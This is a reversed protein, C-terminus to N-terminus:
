SPRTVVRNRGSDKVTYLTEDADKILAEVSDHGALQTIGGSVTVFSAASSFDHPYALLRFEETIRQGITEAQEASTNPLIIVFEEGGYRAVIDTPRCACKQLTNAVAKLCEDGAQHGYHDNFPKFHDVDLMIISLPSKDRKARNFELAIAKDFGRRNTLSTLQDQFALLEMKLKTGHLEEQINFLREMAHIMAKLVEPVIPKFLYIDGGSKIGETFFKPDTKASVFIIPFWNPIIERILRTTEFGNIDPMEVDMLVLDVKENKCIELAEKGTSAEIVQHGMSTVIFSSVMRITRQDDVILVRM